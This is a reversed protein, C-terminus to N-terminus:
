GWYQQYKEVNAQHEEYTKAFVLESTEAPNQNCFYLYGGALYEENPYLAAEIAAKGPNCVPGVPLGNYKYTNYLSDTAREDENFVYKTVGLVYSLSACSQLPMNQSLRNHFVASVKAFDGPAQAEREILSALTLVQDMTMNLQQARTLYEDTFVENFRNLMKILITEVSADAYVEYTDPFLYGELVYARSGVNSMAAVDNIFAFNTFASGTRAAELLDAENSILGKEILVKGIGVITYGEPVTFTVTAKPANGECLEEVIQKVSMNKSFIYTGAKLSNAKGVFDVYVKFAATSSILGEKDYGCAGYLIRAISSASSSSPITVEIPTADNMDVPNIYNSLVYNVTFRAIFFVILLSIGLVVAPRVALWLRRMRKQKKLKEREARTAM